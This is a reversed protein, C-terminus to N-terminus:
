GLYYLVTRKQKYKKESSVERERAGKRGKREEVFGEIHTNTNYNLKLKNKWLVNIGITCNSATPIVNKNSTMTCM